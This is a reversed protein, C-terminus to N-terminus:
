HKVPSELQLLLHMNNELQFLRTELTAIRDLLLGKFYAERVMMGRDILGRTISSSEGKWKPLNQQRELNNTVFDLHDLRSLMPVSSLSHRQQEMTEMLSQLNKEFFINM